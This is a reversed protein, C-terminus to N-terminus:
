LCNLPKPLGAIKSAVRAPSPPFLGMVYISNGKDKGLQLGIQKVLIRMAPSQEFDLYFQRLLRIVDWHEASLPIKEEDALAEALPEDWDLSNLLYGEHDREVADISPM